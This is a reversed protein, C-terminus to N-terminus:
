RQKENLYSYCYGCIELEESCKKCIKPHCSNQHQCEQKCRKCDYTWFAQMALRDSFYYYCNRCQYIAIRHKKDKDDQINKAKTIASEVKYSSMRTAFNLDEQNFTHEKEGPVEKTKM